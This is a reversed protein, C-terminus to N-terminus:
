SLWVKPDQRTPPKLWRSFYSLWHSPHCGTYSISLLVHGLGGVLIYVGPWNFAKDSFPSGWPEMVWENRMMKGLTASKGPVRSSPHQFFSKLNPSGKRGGFDCFMRWKRFNWELSKLFNNRVYANHNSDPGKKKGHKNNWIQDGYFQIVAWWREFPVVQFYLYRIVWCM